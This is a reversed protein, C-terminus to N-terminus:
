PEFYFDGCVASGAAIDTKRVMLAAAIRNILELIYGLTAMKFNDGGQQRSYPRRWQKKIFGCLVARALAWIDTNM